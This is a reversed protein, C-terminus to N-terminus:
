TLDHRSAAAIRAAAHDVFVRAAWLAMGRWKGTKRATEFLATAFSAVTQRGAPDDVLERFRRYVRWELPVEGLEKELMTIVEDAFFLGGTGTKTADHLRTASLYHPLFCFSARSNALRLWLSYDMCYHLSTDIGGAAQYASRRFFTSPQSLYCFTKLYEPDFRAVPYAGIINDAANIFWAKGYVVDVSAQSFTAAVRVLSGPLLMDDANLWGLVDADTGTFGKVLADAQGKDPEIVLQMGPHEQELRRLIQQSGDDSVSDIVVYEVEVGDLQQTMVSNVCREVFAAQNFSPTIIRFRM